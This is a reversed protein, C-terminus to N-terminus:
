LSRGFSVFSWTHALTLDPTREEHWILIRTRVLVDLVIREAHGGVVRDDGDDLGGGGDEVNFHVSVWACGM